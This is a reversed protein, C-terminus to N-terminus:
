VERKNRRRVRGELFWAAGLSAAILALWAPPSGLAADRVSETRSARREILGAWGPGAFAAANPSVRRVAPLAISGGRRFEFRGGRTNESLPKLKESNSVVDQFEPAAALGMAGVAFLDGARVRYLGGPADKVIARFRGPGEAELALDRVNGDPWTLSVPGPDDEMSRRGVILDRGSPKLSLQEEELEPEKMLWHATRRLLEAHPGGGDFGRAWLWVHDSLILGVRGDSVRDLVLLPDAGPGEMLARGSRMAAPMIRLWRGWYDQEPLEATVPHRAGAESVQPRFPEERAVGAPSAPLIFAFNRQTALSEPGAFEPGAAVLVAGGNEVFRAINDFHYANLVGRYAYRDFILLDFEELKEIFLEDQPFPILALEDTQETLSGKEIPRLITFHVLDVAPDSKLLNRWVREGAHPEGSILLVRLRDRIASIELVAVNNRATLEGPRESTELEVVLSGPHDLPADFTVEAGIPVADRLIEKGDIRLAVEARGDVAGAPQDDPGLDDVRFSIKVQTKVIGYRPADILSIKRDIEGARGSNLVHIPADIDLGSARAHDSAQGDTLVFVGGLRGRPTDALANEIAEVMRTEDEGAADRRVIEVVGLAKLREELAGAAQETAAARGDLSQSASEDIILVAIDALPTTEATRLQPNALLVVLAALAITRFVAGRAGRVFSLAAAALAAAAVFALALDPIFPEFVIRDM